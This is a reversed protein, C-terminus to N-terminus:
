VLSILSGDIMARICVSGLNPSMSPERLISAEDFFKQQYRHDYYDLVKQQLKKPVRRFRMYEKVQSIQLILPFEQILNNFIANFM